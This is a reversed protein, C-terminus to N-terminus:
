ASKKNGNTKRAAIGLQERMISNEGILKNIETKLEEIQNDKDEIITEYVKIMDGSDVDSNETEASGASDFFMNGRGTLIYRPNINKNRSCVYSVVEIQISNRGNRANSLKQKTLGPIENCLSAGSIGINDLVEFFRKTVDDM